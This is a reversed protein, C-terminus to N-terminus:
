VSSFSSRSSVNAISAIVTVITAVTLTEEVTVLVILDVIGDEVTLDVFDVATEGLLVDTVGELLVEVAITETVADWVEIDLVLETTALLELSLVVDVVGVGVGVGM